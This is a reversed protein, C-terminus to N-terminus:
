TVVESYDFPISIVARDWEDDPVPRPPSAAGCSVGSGDWRNFVDRATNVKTILDSRAVGKLGNVSIQIVGYMRNRGNMTEMFGDGWLIDLQVWTKADPPVFEVNPWAIDTTTGWQADFRALIALQATDIASAV